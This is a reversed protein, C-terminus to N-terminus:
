GAPEKKKQETYSYGIVPTNKILPYAVKSGLIQVLYGLIVVAVEIYGNIKGWDPDVNLFYVIAVIVFAGLNLGQVWKEADGDKVVKFYKLVNVVLSIMTGLAALGAIIALIEQAM